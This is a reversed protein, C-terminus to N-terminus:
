EFLEPVTVIEYGRGQIEDILASLIEATQDSGCHMLIIAGDSLGALVRNKVQEPSMTPKWDLSDVTWYISRYGSEAVIRLVRADRAGYPARFLPKTTEVDATKVIQEEAAKLQYIIDKDKEKTLDPHSYTHNGIVNGQEAIKETLEPNEKVWKGTLFFTAKVGSDELVELIKPTVESEAGADFTLAVRKSGVPGRSIEEASPKITSLSVEGNDKEGEEDKEQEDKEDDLPEKAPVKLIDGIQLSNDDDEINNLERLKDVTTNYHAAIAYLTDGSQVTYEYYTPALTTTTTTPPKYETSVTNTPNESIKESEVPASFKRALSYGGYSAVALISVFIVLVFAIRKYNWRYRYHQQSEQIRPARKDEM